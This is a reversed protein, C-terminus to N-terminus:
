TGGRYGEACTVSMAAVLALAVLKRGKLFKQKKM